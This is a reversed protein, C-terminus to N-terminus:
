SRDQCYSEVETKEMNRCHNPAGTRDWRLQPLFEGKEDTEYYEEKQKPTTYPFLQFAKLKYRRM